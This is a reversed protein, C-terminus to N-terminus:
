RLRDNIKAMCEACETLDGDHGQDDHENEFGAWVYCAKCLGVGSEGYGTERTAKGCDDCTYVALRNFRSNSSTTTM